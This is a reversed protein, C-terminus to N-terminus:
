ARAGAAERRGRVGISLLAVCGVPVLGTVWAGVSYSGVYVLWPGLAVTLLVAAISIRRRPSGREVVLAAVVAAPALGILHDYDGLYPPLAISAVAVAAAAVPLRLDVRASRAIRWCACAVAAVLLAGALAPAAPVLGAALAWVSAYELLANLSAPAGGSLVGISAPQLSIGAIVIAALVVATIGITRRDRRRVLVVLAVAAVALVVHPKLALIVAGAVFAPRSPARLGHAVLALGVLMLGAFHGGRIAFVFPASMFLAAITLGAVFPSRWPALAAVAAVGAIALVLFAAHIAGAGIELPMAGFPVFLYGTWPPYLWVPIGAVAQRAIANVVIAAPDTSLTAADAWAAPDYPSRGTALLHGAYWFTFYDGLHRPPTWLIPWLAALAAAPPLWPAWARLRGTSM